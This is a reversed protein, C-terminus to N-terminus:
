DLAALRFLPAGTEVEEGDTFLIAELRANRDAKVDHFIKMAEVLCMTQGPHVSSGAQVFVPMDPAPRLHVIGYLPSRVWGAADDTIGTQVQEQLQPQLQGDQANAREVPPFLGTPVPEFGSSVGAGSQKVLRLKYEGQSFELEALGSDKLVEILEKIKQLEM